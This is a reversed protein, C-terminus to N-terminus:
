VCVKAVASRLVGLRTATHKASNGLHVASAQNPVTPVAKKAAAVLKGTPQSPSPGTCGSTSFQHATYLLKVTMILHSSHKILVLDM